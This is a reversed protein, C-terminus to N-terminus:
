GEGNPCPPERTPHIVHLNYGYPGEDYLGPFLTRPHIFAPDDDVPEVLERGRCWATWDSGQESLGEAIPLGDKMSKQRSASQGPAASLTLTSSLWRTRLYPRDAEQIETKKKPVGIM